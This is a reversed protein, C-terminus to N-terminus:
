SAHQQSILTGFHDLHFFRLAIWSRDMRRKGGPITALLGDHDIQVRRYPAINLSEERQSSHHM